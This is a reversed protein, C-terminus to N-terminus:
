LCCAGLSSDSKLDEWGVWGDAGAFLIRMELVAGTAIGKCSFLSM